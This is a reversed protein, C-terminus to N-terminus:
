ASNSLASHRNRLNCRCFAKLMTFERQLGAIKVDITTLANCVRNRVSLGDGKEEIALPNERGVKEFCM